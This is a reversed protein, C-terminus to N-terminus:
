AYIEEKLERVVRAENADSHMRDVCRQVVYFSAPPSTHQMIASIQKFTVGLQRLMYALRDRRAIDRKRVSHLFQLPTYGAESAIREILHTVRQQKTTM